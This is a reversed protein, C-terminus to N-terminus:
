NMRLSSLANEFVSYDPNVSDDTYTFFFKHAAGTLQSKLIVTNIGDTSSTGAVDRETNSQDCYFDVGQWKAAAGVADPNASVDKTFNSCNDSIQGVIQLRDSEGQVILVRNVALNTPITDEYVTFAEGTGDSSANWTYSQYPGPPRPILQWGTPLSISFDPENYQKTQSDYNVQTTIAAAQKIVVKPKLRHRVAVIAIVTLLIIVLLLILWFLRRRRRRKRDKQPGQGLQYM